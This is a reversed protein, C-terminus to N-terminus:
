KHLLHLTLHREERGLSVPNTRFFSEKMDQLQQLRQLQEKVKEQRYSMCADDSKERCIIHNLRSQLKRRTKEVSWTSMDCPFEEHVYWYLIFDDPEYMAISPCTDVLSKLQWILHPNSQLLRRYNAKQRRKLCRVLRKKVRDILEETKQRKEKGEQMFDGALQRATFELEDLYDMAFVENMEEPKLMTLM